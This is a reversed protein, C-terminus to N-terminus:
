EELGPFVRQRLPTEKEKPILPSTSFCIIHEMKKLRQPNKAMEAPTRGDFTPNKTHWWKLLEADNFDLFNKVRAKIKRVKANNM